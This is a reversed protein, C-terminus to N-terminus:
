DGKPCWLALEVAQQLKDPNVKMYELVGEVFGQRKQVLSFLLHLGTVEPYGLRQAEAIALDLTTKALPTLESNGSVLIEGRGITSRVAYWVEGRSLGFAHLIPGAPSELRTLGLLLHGTGIYPHNLNRAEEPADFALTKKLDPSLEIGAVAETM